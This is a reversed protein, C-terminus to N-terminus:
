GVRVVHSRSVSRKGDCVVGSRLTRPKTIRAFFRGHAHPRLLKWRGARNSKTKGIVRRNSQRVVAVVRHRHCPVKHSGVQGHFAPDTEIRLWSGYSVEGGKGTAAGGFALAVLCAVAGAAILLRRIRDVNEESM